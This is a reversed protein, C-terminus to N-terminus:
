YYRMCYEVVKKANYEVSDNMYITIARKVARERIREFQQKQVKLINSLESENRVRHLRSGNPKRSHIRKISTDTDVMCNVFVVNDLRNIVQRICEYYKEIDRIEGLYVMSVFGQVIGQDLICVGRKREKQTCMKEIGLWHDFTMNMFRFRERTLPRVLFFAKLFICYVNRLRKSLIIEKYNRQVKTIKKPSIERIEMLRLLKKVALATTTKGSGPIGNFEIVLPEGVIQGM